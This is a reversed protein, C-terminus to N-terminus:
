RLAPGEFFAERIAARDFDTLTTGARPNMVSPRVSVHNFGLAHGLEHTRAVDRHNSQRDFADDLLIVAEVISGNRSSVRGGYGLNGTTSQVGRFRGVVIDGHRLVNVITGHRATEVTVSRFAKYTGATLEDLATTLDLTLQQVDSASLTDNLAVFGSALDGSRYELVASQIVLAPTTSWSERRGSTGELLERIAADDKAAEDKAAEDIASNGTSNILTRAHPTASFM